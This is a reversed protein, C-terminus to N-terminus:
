LNAERYTPRGPARGGSYGSVVKKVGKIQGYIAEICWFCGGGLTALQLKTKM